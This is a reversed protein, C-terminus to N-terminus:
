DKNSKIFTEYRGSRVIQNKQINWTNIKTKLDVLEENLKRISHDHNKIHLKITDINKNIQINLEIADKQDYFEQIQSQIRELSSKDSTM